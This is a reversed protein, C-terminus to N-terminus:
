KISKNNLQNSQNTIKDFQNLKLIYMASLPYIVGATITYSIFHLLPYM